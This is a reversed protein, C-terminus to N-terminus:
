PSPRDGMALAAMGVPCVSVSMLTFTASLHPAFRLHTAILALAVSPCVALTLTVIVGMMVVAPARDHTAPVAAWMRTKLFGIRSNACEIRVGLMRGVLRQWWPGLWRDVLMVWGVCAAACFAFAVM